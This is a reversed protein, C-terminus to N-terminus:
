REEPGTRRRGGRAPRAPVRSAPHGAPRHSHRRRPSRASGAVDHRLLRRPRRRSQREPEVGREDTRGRLRRPHLVATYRYARGEVERRVWGKQHLNDMVTMVTTYAISREQQLDELVERVTVPRNWQWVRTMVADELEGLPRPVAGGYHAFRGYADISPPFGPSRPAASCFPRVAGHPGYTGPPAPGATPDPPPSGDAQRAAEARALAADVIADEKAKNPGGQSKVITVVLGIFFAAMVVPAPARIRIGHRVPYSDPPGSRPRPRRFPGGARRSCRPPSPCRASRRSPCPRSPSTPRRADAPCPSCGPGPARDAAPATAQVVRALRARVSREALGQCRALLEAAAPNRRLARLAALDDVRPRVPPWRTGSSSWTAASPARCPRATAPWTRSSSPACGVPRAYRRTWPNPWACATRSTRTRFPAPHLASALARRLVRLEDAGFVM